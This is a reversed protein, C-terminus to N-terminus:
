DCNEDWWADDAEVEEAWIIKADGMMILDANSPNKIMREIVKAAYTDDCGRPLVCILGSGINEYAGMIVWQKSTM